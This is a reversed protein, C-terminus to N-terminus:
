ICFLFKWIKSILV